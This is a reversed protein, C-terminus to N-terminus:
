DTVAEFVTGNADPDVSWRSPLPAPEQVIIIPGCDAEERLKQHAMGNTFMEPTLARDPVCWVSNKFYWVGPIGLKVHGTNCALLVVTRGPHRKRYHEVIERVPTVHDHPAYSTGLVWEGAVFDGGHCLIGVANDFRRGIEDRWLPAYHALTPDLTEIIVRPDSQTRALPEDDHIGLATFGAGILVLVVVLIAFGYRKM